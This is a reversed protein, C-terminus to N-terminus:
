GTPRHPHRAPEGAGILFVDSYEPGFGLLSQLSFNSSYVIRAGDRSAAVRPAYNYDNWPRSRHHALRRVATGDLRVQLIENTYATWGEDDASPDAPAFTSVFIWPGEHPASVHTALSWDLSLLCTQGGDGLRVKVIGNDCIPNPDAANARVVIQAGDADRGVDMHGGAQSVQKVFGMNADYLELGNFREPGIAHWGVLMQNDPTVIVQDFGGLAGTDLAGGSTDTGIRYLFIERDDGVLALHDGDFSLDSEGRGGIHAYEDFRRVLTSAGTAVDFRRLENADHFFFLNHDHISWRPESSAHVEHPLVQLLRGARDYLAFVSQHQLLLRSAGRNFPSVTSYEHVIFELPGGDIDETARADSVRLISTGFVPDTYAQGAAPPLLTAYNPPTVVAGGVVQASSPNALLISSLVAAATAVRMPVCRPVSAARTTVLNPVRDLM